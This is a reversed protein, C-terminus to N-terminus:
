EGQENLEMDSVLINKEAEESPASNTRSYRASEYTGMSGFSRRRYLYIGGVVLAILVLAAVLVQILVHLHDVEAPLFPFCINLCLMRFLKM